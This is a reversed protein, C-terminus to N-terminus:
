PKNGACLWRQATAEPLFAVVKAYTALVKELETVLATNDRNDDSFAIDLMRGLREDCAKVGDWDDSDFATQMAKRTRIVDVLSSCVLPM